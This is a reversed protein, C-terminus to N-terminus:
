IGLYYFIVAFFGDAIVILIIGSVVARTAADGVASPGTGAQLGRLCGIASLLLGFVFAKFIGQSFDIWNAASLVQNVYTILPYDMALLVISGGSVAVLDAFVTLLPTLITAGLVRVLVLYRVPDIGMTSLADIEENVKMTGIEAAFSSCSRGALTLATMLPGLERLISLAILDAVYIEVGFQGMPIAAQFAMILGVLFSILAIIPLANVASKEGVLLVDRWCICRPHLIAYALAAALEGVFTVTHKFDTWIDCAMRGLEEPIRPPEAGTVEPKEFDPPAHLELLEQLKESLGHLEFNANRDIQQWRLDVLLAMGSGDAYEVDSADIVLDAPKERNVADQATRWIDGLSSSELRGSMELILRGQQDTRSKLTATQDPM